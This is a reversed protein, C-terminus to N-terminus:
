AREREELLRRTEADIEAGLLIVFATAFLWMLLAVVGAAGGYTNRYHAVTQVYISFGASIGLWGLTAVVAGPSFTLWHAPRVVPAVRYLITVAVGFMLLLAPWRAFTILVRTSSLISVRELVIPALALLGVAIALVALAGLTVLLALRRRHLFTRSQEVDYAINLARILGVVGTSTTWLAALIAILVGLSLRRSSAASLRSLQDILLEQSSDPLVAAFDASHRAVQAPDAILGYIGLAAVICPFLSLFWWFAVGASLLQVDDARLERATRGAVTRWDAPSL